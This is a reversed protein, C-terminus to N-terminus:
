RSVRWRMETVSLAPFTYEFRSSAAQFRSREPAVREPDDFSNVADPEGSHRRDHLTWTDVEQAGDGFASLDLRRAVDRLEANVALLVVEKGDASLTASLDPMRDTTAAPEVKLPRNGSLTAYMQQMYYTPTKYLRHNDTQIIGSCFSNALNSRNAIQVSM